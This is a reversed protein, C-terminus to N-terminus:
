PLGLKVILAKAEGVPLELQLLLQSDDPQAFDAGGEWAGSSLVDVLNIDQTTATPQLVLQGFTDLTAKRM